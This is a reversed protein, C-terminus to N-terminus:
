RALRGTRDKKTLLYKLASHDTIIKFYREYLFAINDNIGMIIAALKKESISLYRVAGKFTQSSYNVAYDNNEEVRQSM